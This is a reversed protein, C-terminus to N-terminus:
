VSRGCVTIQTNNADRIQFFTILFVWVSSTRLDEVVQFLLLFEEPIPLATGNSFVSMDSPRLRIYSSAHILKYIYIVM